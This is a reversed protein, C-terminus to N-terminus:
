PNAGIMKAAQRRARVIPEHFSEMWALIMAGERLLIIQYAIDRADPIGAERAWGEIRSRVVEKAELIVAQQDAASPGLETSASSLACGPFGPRKFEKLAVDFLGLISERADKGKVEVDLATLQQEALRRLYATVLQDKSKFYHYLSMKAVKAKAAIRDVGVPTIGEQGFLEASASLLRERLPSSMRQEPTMKRRGM